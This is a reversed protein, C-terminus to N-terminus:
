SAMEVKGSCRTDWIIISGDRAGTALINNNQFGFSVSKLSGSHQKFIAKKKGSPADWLGASQDGSATVIWPEEHAWAIDFIANDHAEFGSFFSSYDFNRSHIIPKCLLSSLESISYKNCLKNLVKVIFKLKM